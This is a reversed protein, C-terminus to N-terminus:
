GEASTFDIYEVAGASQADSRYCRILDWRHTLYIQKVNLSLSFLLILSIKITIFFQKIM